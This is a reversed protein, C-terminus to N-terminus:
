ASKPGAIRYGLWAMPIYAMTIDLITFWLAGPLMINVAIGAALFLTGVIYALRQKRSVALKVVILVSTLTGLAHALFPFLFYKAELTPMVAKFAEMDNPDIGPVPLVAYGVQLLGMNVVNGCLLALILALINRVISNM